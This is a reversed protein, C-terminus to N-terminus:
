SALTELQASTHTFLLDTEDLFREFIIRNAREVRLHFDMDVVGQQVALERLQDIMQRGDV